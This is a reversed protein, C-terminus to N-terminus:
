SKSVLEDVTLKDARLEGGISPDNEVNLGLINDVDVTGVTIQLDDEVLLSTRTALDRIGTSRLPIKVTYLM